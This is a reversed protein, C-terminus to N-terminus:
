MAYSTECNEMCIGYDIAAADMENRYAVTLMMQTAVGAFAAGIGATALCMAVNLASACVLSKDALNTRNDWSAKCSSQCRRLKFSNDEVRTKIIPTSSSIIVPNLDRNAQLEEFIFNENGKIEKMLDEKKVLEQKAGLASIFAEKARISDNGLIKAAQYELLTEYRQPDSIFLKVLKLLELKEEETMRARVEDIISMFDAYKSDYEKFESSRLVVSCKTTESNLEAEDVFEDYESNCGQIILGLLTLVLFYRKRFKALVM